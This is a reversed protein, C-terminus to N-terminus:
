KNRSVLSERSPVQSHFMSSFAPPFFASRLAGCVLTLLPPHWAVGRWAMGSGTVRLANCVIRQEVYMWTQIGEYDYMFMPYDGRRPASKQEHAVHIRSELEAAAAAASCATHTVGGEAVSAESLFFLLHFNHHARFVERLM